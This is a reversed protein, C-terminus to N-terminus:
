MQGELELIRRHLRQRYMDMSEGPAPNFNIERGKAMTGAETKHWGVVEKKKDEIVLEDEWREGNLWSSAHPTYMLETNTSKWYKIHSPLAQLALQKNAETLREFAKRAAGKAMKKPYLSWFENFM